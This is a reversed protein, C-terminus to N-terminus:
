FFEIFLIFKDNKMPKVNLLPPFRTLYCHIFELRISITFVHFYKWSQMVESIKSSNWCHPLKKHKM